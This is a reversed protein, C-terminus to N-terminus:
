SITARQRLRSSCLFAFIILSYYVINGFTNISKFVLVSSHSKAFSPVFTANVFFLEIFNVFIMGTALWFLPDKMFSTNLSVKYYFRYYLIAIFIVHLCAADIFLPNFKEIGIVIMAVLELLLFFVSSINLITRYSKEKFAFYFIYWYVGSQLFFFATFTITNKIKWTEYLGWFSFGENIVTIFLLFCLLQLSQPRLKTILSLGVLLALSEFGYSIYFMLENM